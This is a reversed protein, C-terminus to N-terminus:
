DDLIRLLARNAAPFAAANLDGRPTWGFPETLGRHVDLPACLVFHLQVAAHDYVHRLELLTRIARVDLSTEERCERVAADHPTEGPEIKGGPFELKGALTQDAARRGVLYRGEHEVVAVAIPVIKRMLGREYGVIFVGIDRLALLRGGAKLGPPMSM